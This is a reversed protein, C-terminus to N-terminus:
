PISAASSMNVSCPGYDKNLKQVAFEQDGSPDGKMRKVKSGHISVKEGVKIGATDTDKLTYIRAESTRLKVGGAPDSYVCGQLTHHHHKVAYTVGVTTGVAITALAATSLAIQTRTCSTAGTCVLTALVAVTIIRHCRRVRSSPESAGPPDSVAQAQM